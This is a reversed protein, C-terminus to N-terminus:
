KKRGKRSPPGIIEPGAGVVILRKSIAELDANMEKTLTSFAEAQKREARSRGAGGIMMGVVLCIAGGISWGLFIGFLLTM